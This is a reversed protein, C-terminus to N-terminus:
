YVSVCGLGLPRGACSEVSEGERECALDRPEEREETGVAAARWSGRRGAPVQERESGALGDATPDM